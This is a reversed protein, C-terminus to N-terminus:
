HDLSRELRDSPVGLNVLIDTGRVNDCTRDLYGVESNFRQMRCGLPGRDDRLDERSPVSVWGPASTWVTEGRSAVTCCDSM